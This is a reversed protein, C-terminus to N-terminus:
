LLHEVPELAQHRMQRLIDEGPVIRAIVLRQDRTLRRQDEVRGRGPRHRHAIRWLHGLLAPMEWRWLSRFSAEIRRLRREPADPLERRVLRRRLAQRQM